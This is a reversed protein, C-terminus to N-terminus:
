QLNNCLEKFASTWIHNTYNYAKAFAKANQIMEEKTLPTIFSNKDINEIAYVVYGNDKLFRFVLSDKYLFVKLGHSLCHYINGMAQQRMVGFIAYSCKNVMEYYEAVPMFDRIFKINLFKSQINNTIRDVYNKDGSVLYNIPLLIERGGPIFNKVDNWIDLHNNTEAQSNGILVGGDFHKKYDIIVHEYSAFFSPYYFEKAHFGHIKRMLQYELPIVPQFYDIREMVSRRLFTYYSSYLIKKVFQKIKSYKGNKNDIVELTLPKFLKVDLLPRMGKQSYYIDYGWAWWIVIKEKPIFRFYKYLNVPLSQFFVIDYTGKSLIHSFDIHNVLNVKDTKKIYKFQYNEVSDVLLICINEFQKVAEFKELVPAFFKEDKVIHLIKFKDM